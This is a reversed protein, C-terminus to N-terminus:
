DRRDPVPETARSLGPLPSSPPNFILSWRAQGPPTLNRCSETLCIENLDLLAFVQNWRPLGPPTVTRFDCLRALKGTM